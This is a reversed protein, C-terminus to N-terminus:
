SDHNQRRYGLEGVCRKFEEGRHKYDRFMDFSSCGPSLLVCDGETALLSARNIAKELTSEKWTPCVGQLDQCVKESTQGIAVVAKVKGLFLDRWITFPFGKDVGGAILIVPKEMAKVAQIVADVNTGKSDDYYDVKDITAVYEIRHAPKEFSELASIFDDEGVGFQRTLLYAALVNESEHIGLKRYSLPLFYAIKEGEKACEKSTFFTADLSPGYTIGRPFLDPYDHFTQDYVYLPAKKKLCGAIKAKAAAYEEMNKYRDLHDPTINTVVAVDLFQGEMMELQYSSLEAVIIEEPNADMVYSCFPVGVNGLAKAKHGAYKLVHETLLTVTTKGNTGTIGIVKQHLYSFALQAEGIMCIGLSNAAQCVPHSLPVGPSLVVSEVELFDIESPKCITVGKAELDPLSTIKDDVGIVKKNQALLLLAAAKGSIGLGLVVTKKM